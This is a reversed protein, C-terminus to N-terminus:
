GLFLIPLWLDLRVGGCDRIVLKLFIKSQFFKDSFTKIAYFYKKTSFMQGFFDTKCLFWKQGFFDNKASFIMKPRFFWKNGLFDNKASFIMKPRFFWHGIIMPRYDNALFNQCWVFLQLEIYIRILILWVM